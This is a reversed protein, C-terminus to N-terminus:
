GELYNTCNSQITFVPARAFPIGLGAAAHFEGDFRQRLQLGMASQTAQLGFGSRPGGFAAHVGLAIGPTFFGAIYNYSAESYVTFTGRTFTYDFGASAGVFHGPDWLGCNKGYSRGALGEFGIYFFTNQPLHGVPSFRISTLDDFRVGFTLGFGIHTVLADNWNPNYNPNEQASIQSSWGFLVLVFLSRKM